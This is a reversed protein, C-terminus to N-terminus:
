DNATSLTVRSVRDIRRYPPTDPVIGRARACEDAATAVVPARDTWVGRGPRTGGDDTARLVLGAGGAAGDAPAM